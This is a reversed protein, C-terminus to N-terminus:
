EGRCNKQGDLEWDKTGAAFWANNKSKDKEPCAGGSEGAGGEQDLDAWGAGVGAGIWGGAVMCSLAEDSRERVVSKKVRVVARGLASVAATV